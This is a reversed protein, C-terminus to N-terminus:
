CRAASRRTARFASVTSCCRGPPTVDVTLLRRAAEASSEAIKPDPGVIRDDVLHYEANTGPRSPVGCYWVEDGVSFNQVDPGIDRVIGAADFGLVRPEGLPEGARRIKTDVPNVSVAKIEVLLDHHRPMPTPLDFDMLAEFDTIPKSHTFAVAKM